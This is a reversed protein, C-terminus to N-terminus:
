RPLDRLGEGEQLLAVLDTLARGAAAGDLVRHDFTLSLTCAPRSVVEGKVVLARPQIVGLAVTVANGPNLLPTGAESGYSGTNSVGITAGRVDEPRLHGGRAAEALRRIEAAISAIGMAHANRLVPVMLGRQTDTAIGVHVSRSTHIGDDKWSANLLPHGGCTRALAAVFVPLPSADLERRFTELASCDVTRFTTVQPIAAVETLRRAIERRVPTITEVSDTDITWGGAANLDEVTVRGDPGTGAITSLDIGREKALKRVAPTATAGTSPTAPESSSSPVVPGVAARPHPLDRDAPDVGGDVADAGDFTVLASGVPVADGVSGHLTTVQGAFPSPIEVTAKATEVEVLPQNLMVLDGEGVLWAVIEGEELGEGLDPMAFVRGAM